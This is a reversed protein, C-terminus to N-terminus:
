SFYSLLDSYFEPKSEMEDSFIKSTQFNEDGPLWSLM